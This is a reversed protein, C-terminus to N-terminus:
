PFVPSTAGVASYLERTLQATRTWSFQSARQFGLAQFEARRADDDILAELGAAISDVRRPDVLLAAEGAVEAMAGRDSTLVPTGLAMAELIPLGFGEYLSPFALLLARRYLSALLADDVWGLVQIRSQGALMRALNPEARGRLGVIVLGTPTGRAIASFAEVLRELNKHPYSAAVSLVFPERVHAAALRAPDEDPSGPWITRAAPPIAVVKTPRVGTWRLIDARAAESLAVIRHSTRAVGPILAGYVRRELRSLDEPHRKYNMDHIATIRPQSSILPATYGLSHVLTAGTVTAIRPLWLQELTLRVARRRSEFPSRVIRWRRDNVAFTGAAEPGVCLVYENVDDISALASVLGRVLTESGGVRNPIVFLANLLLRM